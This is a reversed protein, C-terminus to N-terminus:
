WYSYTVSGRLERVRKRVGRHHVLVESASTFRCIAFSLSSHVGWTRVMASLTRSPSLSSSTCASGTSVNRMSIRLSEGEVDQSAPM